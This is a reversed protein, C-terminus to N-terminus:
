VKFLTSTVPYKFLTAAQELDLRTAQLMHLREPQQQRVHSRVHLSVISLNAKQGDNISSLMIINMKCMESDEVNLSSLLCFNFTQFYGNKTFIPNLWQLPHYNVLWNHVWVLSYAKTILRNETSPMLSSQASNPAPPSSASMNGLTRSWYNGCCVNLCITTLQLGNTTPPRKPYNNKNEIYRSIKVHM